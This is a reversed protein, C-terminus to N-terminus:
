GKFIPFDAGYAVCTIRLAIGGQDGSLDGPRSGESDWRNVARFAVSFQDHWSAFRM